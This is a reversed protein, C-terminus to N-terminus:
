VTKTCSRHQGADGQDDDKRGASLRFFSRVLLPDPIEHLSVSLVRFYGHALQEIERLSLKKDALAVVFDEIDQKSVGNMRMFQRLSYMYPYVPFGGSFLKERVVASM